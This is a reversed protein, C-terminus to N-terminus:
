GDCDALGNVLAQMPSNAPAANALEYLFESAGVDHRLVDFGRVAFHGGILSPFM